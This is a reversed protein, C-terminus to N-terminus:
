IVAVIGLLILPYILGRLLPQPQSKYILYAVPLYIINYIRGGGVSSMASLYLSKGDQISPFSNYAISFALWLIMWSIPSELLHLSLFLIFATTTNFFLPGTVILFEQLVTKPKVHVVYGLPDMPRFLSYKKIEVGCLKCFAIHGLEHAIIGPFTIGSIIERLNLM